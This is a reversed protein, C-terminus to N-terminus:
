MWVMGNLADILAPADKRLRDDVAILAQETGDVAFRSTALGLRM